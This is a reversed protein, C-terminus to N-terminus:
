FQEPKHSIWKEREERMSMNKSINRFVRKRHMEEIDKLHQKYREEAEMRRIATHEVVSTFYQERYNTLGGRYLGAEAIDFKKLLERRAKGVRLKWLGKEKIQRVRDLSIGQEGAIVAMSKCHVFIDKIIRNEREETYREVIKWLEAKSYEAYIRNVAESELDFGDQLMEAFTLNKDEALPTDLSGVGQMYGKIEQVEEASIGMLDAIEGNTPERGREQEIREIAKRCHTMKQRQHSPIRVTSGCKEIYKRVSRIIWFKAYTIFQVNESSEYHQAAEWLGFYSEQLIDEMPEFVAYPRIFKKILPLNNEHLAQMNEAVCHGSRIREVLTENEHVM